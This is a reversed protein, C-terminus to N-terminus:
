RPGSSAPIRGRKEHFDDGLQLLQVVLIPLTFNLWVGEQFLFFSAPVLGFVIIAGVVVVGQARSVNAFLVSLALVAVAELILVLWWPPSHAEGYKLLSHLTNVLILSGPMEGLPTMYIDRSDAYSAGIVVIEGNWLPKDTPDGVETFLYAPKITLLPFGAQGRWALTQRAEGGRLHWPFAFLIRRTLAGADLTLSVGDLRFSDVVKASSGVACAVPVQRSLVSDVRQRAALPNPDLATMAELQISPLLKPKAKGNAYDCILESLRWRRVKGDSDIDFATTGWRLVSSQALVPDLFSAREQRYTGTAVHTRLGRALLVTTQQGIQRQLSALYSALVRDDEGMARSLEVDIVVVAARADVATRILKLLKDRPTYLPEGWDRYTQEDIDIFVFPRMRSNPSPNTGANMKIMWDMALDSDQKVMPLNNLFYLGLVAVFGLLTNKIIRGSQSYSLIQNGIKIRGFRHSLWVFFGAVLLFVLARVGLM